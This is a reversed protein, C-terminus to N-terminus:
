HDAGEPCSTDSQKACHCDACGSCKREKGTLTHYFSRGAFLAAVGVIVIVLITEWM